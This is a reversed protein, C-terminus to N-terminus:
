FVEKVDVAKGVIDIAPNTQLSSNTTNYINLEGGECVYVVSRNPIPELSTVDDPIPAGSPGLLPPHIVVTNAATDYIALCGQTGTNSCARAGVFLKGNSGLAIRDHIGDPIAISAMPTLGNANLVTLTGPASPATGAVYLTSGNLLAVHAPVSPSTSTVTQTALSLASVGATTGGCELGCNLVYATADDTTFVASVPRDFTIPITPATGPLSATNIISVSNSNDSFVLLTSNNHSLVLTRAGPVSVVTAGAALNTTDFVEVAGALTAGSAITNREAAFVFRDDSSIAFSETPNRLPLTSKAAETANDVIVLTNTNSDFVVTQKKDQSEVMLTPGSGAGITFTSLKDQAADIIQVLGTVGGTSNSVFARKSIKSVPNNTQSSSSGGGGCSVLFVGAVVLLFSVIGRV